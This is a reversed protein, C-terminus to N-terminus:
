LYKLGCPISNCNSLLLPFVIRLGSCNISKARWKQFLPYLALFSPLFHCVLFARFAPAPAKLDDIIIHSAVYVLDLITYYRRFACVITAFMYARRTEASFTTVEPM